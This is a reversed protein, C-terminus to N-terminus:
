PPPNKIPGAVGKGGLELESGQLFLKDVIKVSYGTRGGAICNGTTAKEAPADEPVEYVKACNGFREPDMAVERPSKSQFSTLLQGFDHLFYTQKEGIDMLSSKALIAIQDKVSFSILKKDPDKNRAGLDGRINFGWESERNKLRVLYNRYFDPEISYYTQDFQNPAIALIELERMKGPQANKASDWALSDGSDGITDLNSKKPDALHDWWSLKLVNDDVSNQIGKAFNGTALKSNVGLADGVFRSFNGRHREDRYDIDTQGPLARPPLLEDIERGQDSFKSSQSWKEKHWPGIRGGFPKAYARATLTISGFPAFPIKPTAQAEFGVYGMCWPNKEFGITSKLLRSNPTADTPEAVYPLLEPISTSFPEELNNPNPADAARGTNIFKPLFRVVNKGDENCQGEMVSYLPLIFIESLWGPTDLDNGSSKCDGLGLSNVVKIGNRNLGDRNQPTLNNELTKIMGQRMSAGDIDILDDSAKSMLNAIKLLLKKRNAIDTKYGYIFRALSYFSINSKHRCTAESKETAVKFLEDVGFQFSILSKYLDLDTSTLSVRGPLPIQVGLVDRCYTENANLFNFPAYAICFSPPFGLPAETEEGARFAKETSIWPHRTLDGALGMQRYRFQMLKFSQRLQYNVHAITNFAEAQKMAGYYAAIDVSNQLNIKHHVLLGLNVIMAFFVFLVQFIFAVFIAVQGRNNM